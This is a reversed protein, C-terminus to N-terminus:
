TMRARLSAPSRGLVQRWRVEELDEAPMIDRAVFGAVTEELTMRALNAGLCYHAGTGFSLLRPASPRTFRQVDFSEAHQWVAPDRNGTIVALLVM